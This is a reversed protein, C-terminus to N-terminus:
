IWIPLSDTREGLVPTDFVRGRWNTKYPWRVARLATVSDLGTLQRVFKKNWVNKKVHRIVSGVSM